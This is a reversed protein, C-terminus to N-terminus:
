MTLYIDLYQMMLDILEADTKASPASSAFQPANRIIPEPCALIWAGYLEAIFKVGQELSMGHTFQFVHDVIVQMTDQDNFSPPLSHNAPWPKRPYQRRQVVTWVHGGFEGVAERKRQEVADGQVKGELWRSLALILGNQVTGVSHTTLFELFDDVVMIAIEKKYATVGPSFSGIGVV